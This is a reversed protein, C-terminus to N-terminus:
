KDTFVKLVEQAFDKATNRADEPDEIETTVVAVLQKNEELDLNYVLTEVMYTMYSDETVTRPTYVGYTSYSYPNRYYGYFGGYYAPYRMGYNAGAYYGGDEYIRKTEKANKVVSMVIATYGENKIIEQMMLTKEETLKKNTDMSPFLRFSETANVGKARMVTALEEEYAIRAQKNSTRAIVLIKNDRTEAVNEARWADVVKVSSCSVLVLLIFCTYVIKKM